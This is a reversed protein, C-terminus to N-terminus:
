DNFQLICTHLDVDYFYVYTWINEVKCKKDMTTKSFLHKEDCSNSLPPPLVHMGCDTCDNNVFFVFFCFVQGILKVAPPWNRRKLHNGNRLLARM